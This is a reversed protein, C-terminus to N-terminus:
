LRLSLTTSILGLLTMMTSPIRIKSFSSSQLRISMLDKNISIRVCTNKATSHTVDFFSRAANLRDGTLVQCSYFWHVFFINFWALLVSIDNDEAATFIWNGEIQQYMFDLTNQFILVIFFGITDVMPKEKYEYM